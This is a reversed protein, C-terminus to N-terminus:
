SGCAPPRGRFGLFIADFNPLRAWFYYFRPLHCSTASRCRRISRESAMTSAPVALCGPSSFAAGELRIGIADFFARWFINGPWAAQGPESSLKAGLSPLPMVCSTPSGLIWAERELAFFVTSCSQRSFAPLVNGTASAVGPTDVLPTSPVV